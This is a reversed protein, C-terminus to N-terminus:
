SNARPLTLTVRLGGEGRNAVTVDGGHELAISRVTALGLGIGGTSRNRSREVRFFPQFVKSQMAEPIGPGDDDIELVFGKEQENLRLRAREGYKVANDVLNGVARRLALPDGQIMSIASAEFVVDRGMDAQDDVVSQVLVRLDLRERITSAHREKLFYLAASIMETMEDIDGRVKSYLPQPLHELRFALRTLPTRLDHAIAGVMETRETLLRNIRAQMANFAAAAAHIEAPGQMTLPTAHPDTGLRHAADAFRRISAALSRAFLWALPLLAIMGLLVLIFADRQFRNPFGQPVSEVVRWTGDPLQKAAVFGEFLLTDQEAQAGPSSRMGGSLLDAFIAEAPRGSRLALEDSLRASLIPDRTARQPPPAAQIRTIIEGRPPGRHLGGPPAGPPQPMDRHIFPDTAGHRGVAADRGDLLKALKEISIPANRMPPRTVSLTIGIGAAVVLAALM